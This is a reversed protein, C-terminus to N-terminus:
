QNSGQSSQPTPQFLNTPRETESRTTIIKPVTLTVGNAVASGDKATNAFIAENYAFVIEYSIADKTAGPTRTSSNELNFSQLVVSSFAKDSADSGEVKFDTFKLTDIFKNVTTLSDATGKVTITKAELDLNVSTIAAQNPTVQTLYEFLRSSMVKSDHLEPLKSLQNQVTLIKDLDPNSKLESVKTKIDKDLDSMHKTQNVRVFLFMLIFITLFAGATIFCFLTIIRKRYTAKIYELKVDPLLNFQIM